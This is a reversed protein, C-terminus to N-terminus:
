YDDDDVYSKYIPYNRCTFCILTGDEQNSEALPFYENCKQCVLGTMKEHIYAILASTVFSAEWGIFKRDIGMAAHNRSSVILSGKITIYPPVYIYYGQYNFGIVEFIRKEDYPEDVPVISADKIKCVIKDGIKIDAM